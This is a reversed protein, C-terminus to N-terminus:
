ERWARFYGLNRRKLMHGYRRTSLVDRQPRSLGPEVGPVTMSHQLRCRMARMPMRVLGHPHIGPPREPHGLMLAAAPSAGHARASRGPLVLATGLRAVSLCVAGHRALSREVAASHEAGSFCCSCCPSNRSHFGPGKAGSTRTLGSSWVALQHRDTVVPRFSKRQTDRPTHAPAVASDAAWATAAGRPM